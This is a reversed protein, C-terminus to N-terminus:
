GSVGMQVLHEAFALDEPTTIKINLRSGPVVTVSCGMQEVLQADDTATANGELAAQHAKQILDVRFIQPTQALWLNQRPVTKVIISTVTTQKLTEVCPLALIAAGSEKAAEYCQKVANHSLHGYRMM